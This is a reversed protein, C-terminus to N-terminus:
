HAAMDDWTWREVRLGIPYRVGGEQHPNLAVPAIMVDARYFLPLQPLDAMYEKIADQILATRKTPDLEVQAADFLKDSKANNWAMYNSGNWGNAATPIKSSHFTALQIDEPSSLTSAYMGMSGFQAKRLTEGFFVRALENKISLEVGIKKWSAQLNVEVLERVKNQATTMISVALRKGNKVRIGDSGKKWGAADLLAEAKATDYPYDVVDKSFYPSLPHYAHAAPKQLGDFLAKCLTPRDISYMLAQRVPLEAVIPDRLNFDVHEFILDDLTEVRFKQALAPDGALRKRFALAQDFTVGVSGTMDISGALLNAELAQTNPLVKFLIHPFAAPKGFYAPNRTLLVHSAANIEKVMYPGNYLGPLSPTVVYATQREYAGAQDKTREFIPGEIKSPLPVFSQDLQNYDYRVEKFKMTFRKPNQIDVVLDEVGDFAEPAGKTVTAATGVRWALRMDEGIIPTGDGWNADKRIEWTVLIKKKGHDDIVKAGGNAISPIGTCLWCEWKWVENVQAVPLVAMNRIAQSASMTSIIPHLTDPEQSMGITLLKPTEALASATWAALVLCLGAVVRM